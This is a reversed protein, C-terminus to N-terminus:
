SSSSTHKTGWWDSILDCILINVGKLFTVGGESMDGGESKDGGISMVEESKDGGRQCTHGWGGHIYVGCCSLCCRLVKAKTALDRTGPNRRYVLCLTTVDRWRELSQNALLYLWMWPCPHIVKVQIEPLRFSTECRVFLYALCISAGTAQLKVSTYHLM